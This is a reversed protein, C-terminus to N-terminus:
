EDGDLRTRRAFAQAAKAKIREIAHRNIIKMLRPRDAEYLQAIRELATAEGPAPRYLFMREEAVFTAEVIKLRELHELADHATQHTMRRENAIQVLSWARSPERQFLLVIELQEHSTVYEQLFVQLESLEDNTNRM